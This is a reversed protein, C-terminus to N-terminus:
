ELSNHAMFHLPSSLRLPTSFKKKRIPGGVSLLLSYTGHSFGSVFRDPWRLIQGLRRFNPHSLYMVVLARKTPPISHLLTHSGPRIKLLSIEEKLTPPKRYGLTRQLSDTYIPIETRILLEVRQLTPDCWAHGQFKGQRISLSVSATGSDHTVTLSARVDEPLRSPDLLVIAIPPLKHCKLAVASVLTYDFLKGRILTFPKALQDMPLVRVSGLKKSPIAAYHYTYDHYVGTSQTIRGVVEIVAERALAETPLVFMDDQIDVRSVFELLSRGLRVSKYGSWLYPIMYLIFCIVMLLLLMNMLLVSARKTIILVFVVLGLILIPLSTASVTKGPIEVGPPLAVIDVSNLRRVAREAYRESYGYLICLAAVYATSTLLLLILVTTLFPGFVSSPTLLQLMILIFATAALLLIVLAVCTRVNVCPAHYSGYPM